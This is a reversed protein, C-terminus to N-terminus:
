DELLTGFREAFAAQEAELRSREKANERQQRKLLAAAEEPSKCGFERRLQELLRALSGEARDARSKLAEAKEKAALYQKLKASM